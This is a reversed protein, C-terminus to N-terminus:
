NGSTVSRSNQHRGGAGFFHGSELTSETGFIVNFYRLKACSLLNSNGGKLCRCLHTSQCHTQLEIARSGKFDVCYCPWKKFEVCSMSTLRCPSM